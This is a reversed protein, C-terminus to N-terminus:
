NERLASSIERKVADVHGPLEKPDMGYRSFRAPNDIAYAAVDEGHARERTPLPERGHPIDLGAEVAGLLAAYIRSGRSNANLGGDLVGHSYGAKLARSGFLLGTLYAAPINGTAGKYGLKKLDLASASILTKDGATNHEILQVILNRGSKRVVVRPRKSIMLGLRKHYNTKGERRRRFPVHYRPGFAM